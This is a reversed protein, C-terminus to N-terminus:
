RARCWRSVSGFCARWPAYGWGQGFRSSWGDAANSAAKAQRAAARSKARVKFESKKRTDSKRSAPNGSRTQRGKQGFVGGVDGLM